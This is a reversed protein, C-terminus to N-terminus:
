SKQTNKSWEFSDMWDFPFQKSFAVLWGVVVVVVVAVDCSIM